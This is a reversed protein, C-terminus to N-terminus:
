TRPNSSAEPASSAAPASSDGGSVNATQTCGTLAVTAVALAAAAPLFSKLSM